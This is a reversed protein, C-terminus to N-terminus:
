RTPVADKRKEIQSIKRYQNPTMGCFKQFVAHFTSRNKFGCDEMVSELSLYNREEDELVAMAELIRLENMYDKFSM